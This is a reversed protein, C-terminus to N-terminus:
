MNINLNKIGSSVFRSGNASSVNEDGDNGNDQIGPKSIVEKFSNM